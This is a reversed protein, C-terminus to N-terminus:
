PCEKVINNESDLEFSCCEGKVQVYFLEQKGDFSYKSHGRCLLSEEKAQANNSVYVSLVLIFIVIKISEKAILKFNM